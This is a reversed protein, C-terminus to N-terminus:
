ASYRIIVIGSGGNTPYYTNNSGNYAGGGGGNSTIDTIDAGSLVSNFGGANLGNDGPTGQVGGAGVTITYTTGGVLTLASESSSNRGSTESNYSNRYGGGGGAGRGPGFGGGYGSGGGGIVLFDATFPDQPARGGAGFGLVQYGFSAM